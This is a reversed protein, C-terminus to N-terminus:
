TAGLKGWVKEWEGEVTEARAWKRGVRAYWYDRNGLDGEIWHCLAHVLDHAFDGEGQQCLMHATQWEEGMRLHGQKLWWLAAQPPTLGPPPIDKNM